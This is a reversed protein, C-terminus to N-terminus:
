DDRDRPGIAIDRNQDATVARQHQAGRRIASYPATATDRM